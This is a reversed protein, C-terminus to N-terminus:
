EYDRFTIGVPFRPVKDNTLEQFRVTLKKGVYKDGNKFLEVRDERTGRPRCSFLKDEPTKCVWLVCGEELGEGEKYDVVEYEDDFFEKYKQLDASRSNKYLGTKNRLMIGEYGEAVYAAHLEKMREESECMDTKVFVLHKFKYKNFLMQLNAYRQEYPMENILDYIHFKIQLQKEEAGKKLTEQKVLSVIEQFTLTDSYLEGDPVVGPPLKNIEAAIHELHPYAKRNRSFLGKSPMGVCRTGDFKRQVFCPFKISKGRKNYDHALMPSPVDETVGKGRNAGSTGQSHNVESDVSVADDATGGTGAGGAGAGGAAIVGYEESIVPSYGSEKKKVWSSKAESIAQQLPTTENKKGINKGESIIKENVQKKGDVYGHTTEIVGVLGTTSACCSARDFVRISWMKTKGTTATGQLEPFTAM